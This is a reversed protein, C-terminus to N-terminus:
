FEATPMNSLTSQPPQEVPAVPAGPAAVPAVPAAVPAVAAVPSVAAVPPGHPAETEPQFPMVKGIRNYVIGEDNPPAQEVFISIRKGIVDNASFNYEGPIPQGGFAARTWSYLKSRGSFKRSCWGMLEGPMIKGPEQVEFTVKFQPGYLGEVGMISKIKGPYVGEPLIEHFTQEVIYNEQYLEQESM